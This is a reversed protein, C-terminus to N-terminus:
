WSSSFAPFMNSTASRRFFTFTDADAAIITRLETAQARNALKALSAIATERLAPHSETDRAATLFLPIYGPDFTNAMTALLQAKMEVQNASFTGYLTTIVTRVQDQQAQSLSLRTLAICGNLKRDVEEARTEALLPDFADAFGLMGLTTTAEPGM